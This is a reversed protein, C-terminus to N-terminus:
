SLRPWDGELLPSGNCAEPGPAIRRHLAQRRSTSVSEYAAEQVLSHNFSFGPESAGRLEFILGSDQLRELAERLQPDDTDAIAALLPLSFQRGIVAATQAVDKARGLRDLRAMLSDQLTTPVTAAGAAQQDLVSKTLEEVYLPVGDSRVAIQQMLSDDIDAQRAVQRIL